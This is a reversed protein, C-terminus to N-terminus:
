TTRFMGRLDPVYCRYRESLQPLVKRWTFWNQPWGHVILLPEGDPPGAVAVHFRVGRAQVFRHEVAVGPVEPFPRDM